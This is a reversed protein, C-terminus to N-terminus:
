DGPIRYRRSPTRRPHVMPTYTAAHFRLEQGFVGAGVVEARPQQNQMLGDDVGGGTAGDHAVTVAVAPVTPGHNRKRQM